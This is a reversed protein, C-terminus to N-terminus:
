CQGIEDDEYSLRRQIEEEIERSMKWSYIMDRIWFICYFVILAICFWAIDSGNISFIPDPYHM